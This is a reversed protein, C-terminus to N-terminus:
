IKDHVDSYRYYYRDSNCAEIGFFIYTFQWDEKNRGGRRPSVCAVKVEWRLYKNCAPRHPYVIMIIVTTNYFIKYDHSGRAISEGEEKALERGRIYLAKSSSVISLRFIMLKLLMCAIMHTCSKFTHGKWVLGALWECGMGQGGLGEWGYWRAIVTAYM